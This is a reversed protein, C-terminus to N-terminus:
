CQAVPTTAKVGTVTTIMGGLYDHERIIQMGAQHFWSVIADPHLKPARKHWTTLMAASFGSACNANILETIQADSIGQKPSLVSVIGGQKCVRATERMVKDPESIINLLSASVVTDFRADEFPLSKADATQYDAQRNALSLAAKIMKESADIGTTSYGRSALYETLIGSACGLELVEANTTPNLDDVWARLTNKYWDLQNIRQFFKVPNLMLRSFVLAENLLLNM